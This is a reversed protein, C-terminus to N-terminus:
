DAVQSTTYHSVYLEKINTLGESTLHVGDYFETAPFYKISNLYANLLEVYFENSAIADVLKEEVLEKKEISVPASYLEFIIDNNKCLSLIKSIYFKTLPSVLNYEEDPLRYEFTFSSSRIFPLKASWYLPIQKYRQILVDSFDQKYESCYFPKLFYHYAYIDLNNSLTMPHILLIVEEPLNEANSEIYNSLLFYHGAMSIAQNCALSVISDSERENEVPFLQRAVSDGLILKKKHNRSKTKSRKQAVYVEWGDIQDKFNGSYFYHAENSLLVISACLSFLITNILFRKM